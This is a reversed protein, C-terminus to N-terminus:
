SGEPFKTGDPTGPEVGLGKPKDNVLLFKSLGGTDQPEPCLSVGYM